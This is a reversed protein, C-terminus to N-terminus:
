PSVKRFTSGAAVFQEGGDEGRRRRVIEGGEALPGILLAEDDSVARMPLRPTTQGGFAKALRAQAGELAETTAM